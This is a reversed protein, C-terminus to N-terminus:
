VCDKLCSIIINYSNEATYNKELYARSNQKYIALDAKMCRCVADYFSDPDNSFSGWGFHGDEIISNLDSVQSTCSIIPLGLEMYSLIRSPFSPTNSNYRLFVLGVDCSALVRKYKSNPIWQSYTVNDPKEVEIYESILSEEIGKGAIFFHCNLDKCRKLCEVVNKIDQGPGLTGGYVFCIKDEPINYQKRIKKKEDASLIVKEPTISNPNIHVKEPSVDSNNKLIYQVNAPSMCGIYDCLRYLCKEHKRFFLHVITQTVIGGPLRVKFINGPWIDKLLLYIKANYKQKVYQIIVDNTVPPTAAIFLDISANGIKNEICQIIQGPFRLLSMGKEIVPTNTINGVLPKIIKYKTQNNPISNRKNRAEIPSIAYIFHGNEVFERLVDTYINTQELSDYDLLSLFLVNM